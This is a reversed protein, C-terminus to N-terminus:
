DYTEQPKIKYIIGNRFAFINIFIFSVIMKIFFPQLDLMNNSM